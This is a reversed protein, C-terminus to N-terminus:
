RHMTRISSRGLDRIMKPTIRDCRLEGLEAAIPILKEATDADCDYLLLADNFTLPREEEGLLYRRCEREERARIWEKAGNESSAGTSERIYDTIALGNYEVKGRAWWTERESIHNSPCLCSELIADIQEPTIIMAKGLVHCAGLERAKARLTRESRHHPDPPIGRLNPKL